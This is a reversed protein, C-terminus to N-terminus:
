IRGYEKVKLGERATLCNFCYFNGCKAAVQNCRSCANM